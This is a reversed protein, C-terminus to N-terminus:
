HLCLAHCMTSIDNNIWILLLCGQVSINLSNLSPEGDDLIVDFVINKAILEDWFTENSQDGTIITVQVLCYASRWLTSHKNLARLVCGKARMSAIIHSISQDRLSAIHFQNEMLHSIQGKGYDIHHSVDSTLDAAKLNNM